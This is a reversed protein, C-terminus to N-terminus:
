HPTRAACPLKAGADLAYVGNRETEWEALRLLDATKWCVHVCAGDSREVSLLLTFVKM